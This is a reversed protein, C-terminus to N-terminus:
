LSTFYYASGSKSEFDFKRTIAPKLVETFICFTNKFTGAPIQHRKDM